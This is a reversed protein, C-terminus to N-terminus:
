PGHVVPADPDAAGGLGVPTVLLPFPFITGRKVPPPPLTLLDM